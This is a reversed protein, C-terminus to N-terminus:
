PSYSSTREHIIGHEVCFDPFDSSFYEGGRDSKLQKIERLNIKLKKKTPRLIICLKM